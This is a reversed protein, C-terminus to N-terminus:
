AASAASSPTAPRAITTMARKPPALPPAAAPNIPAPATATIRPTERKLGVRTRGSADIAPLGSSTARFSVPRRARSFVWRLGALVATVAAASIIPRATTAKTVTKAAPMLLEIAEATSSLKWPWSTIWFVSPNEGIEGPAAAAARSTGPTSSTAVIRVAWAFTTPPPPLGFTLESGGSASSTRLM